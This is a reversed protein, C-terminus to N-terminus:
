RRVVLACGALQTVYNFSGLALAHTWSKIEPAFKVVGGISCTM